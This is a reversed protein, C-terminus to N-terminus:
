FEEAERDPELYDGTHENYFVPFRGAQGFARDELLVFTSMNREEAPLEPSKDREIGLMYYTKEMM